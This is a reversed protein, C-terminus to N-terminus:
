LRSPIPNNFDMNAISTKAEEPTLLLLVTIQSQVDEPLHELLGWVQDHRAGRDAGKFSPDIIRIRISASNQRYSDIQASSHSPKYESDLIDLIASVDVDALAIKKRRLM